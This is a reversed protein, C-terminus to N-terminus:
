ARWAIFDLTIPPANGRMLDALISATGCAFTFGLPGHGVNLWLNAHRTRGLLPASNPTAPRLGAWAEIREYDAAAPMSERARRTLGAVRRADLAPNDGVMDVMAAVRLSDGIRAYLTKHEFDTVSIAPALDHPRIPATLSYGKLPYLPLHIGATAALDRSQIGAALVYDDGQLWGDATEVGVVRSDETFLSVARGHVVGEFRPHKPLRRALAACFASCDAVAEGPNFIGGALQPALGALAPELAAAKAGTVVQGAGARAAAADFLAPTRYLVLKGAERWGFESLPVHVALQAMKRRSLEGLELLKATTRRNSVGNCNALFAALWRWQRWDAEPRFRLPGDAEFLWQLAKLPVGADALPAVYRYSLQGGNRYSAGRGVEPARELLTVRFGAELLWWASTLGVVGGGIVIVHRGHGQQSTQM